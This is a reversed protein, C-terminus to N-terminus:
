VWFRPMDFRPMDSWSLWGALAGGLEKLRMHLTTSWDERAPLSFWTLFFDEYVQKAPLTTLMKVM